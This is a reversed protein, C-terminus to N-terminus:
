KVEKLIGGLIWLMLKASSELAHLNKKTFVYDYAFDDLNTSM